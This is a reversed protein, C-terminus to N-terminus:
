RCPASTVAKIFGAYQYLYQYQWDALSFDYRRPVARFSVATGPTMCQNFIFRARPLHYRWTIVLLSKWHRQTALGRVWMAEGRTTTPEPKACIVEIMGDRRDCFRGMFGDDAAYPKSLLVVPALGRRALAMGYAERGDHEGALVVIADALMLESDPARTFVAFGVAGLLINGGALLLAVVLAWGRRTV